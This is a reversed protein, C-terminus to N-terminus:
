KPTLDRFEPRGFLYGQFADVGFSRLVDYQEEREVGEAVVHLGMYHALHVISRVVEADVPDHVLNNVFSRDIKLEHVPLERLYSLSSYGTGFDDLAVQVHLDHLDRLTKIAQSIDSQLTSETVEIRLKEGRVGHRELASRVIEAFGGGRLQFESVNISLCLSSTSPHQGWQALMRCAEDLVWLGIETILGTREAIPIFDQPSVLGRKDDQWRVLGEYCRVTRDADVIPQLFLCLAGEAIGKRLDLVLDIHEKMETLMSSDFGRVRAYETRAHKRALEATTMLEESDLGEERSRYLRYGATATNELEIGAGLVVRGSVADLAQEAIEIVQTEAVTCDSSLGGILLGFLGTDIYGITHVPGRLSGLRKAAFRLLAEGKAVGFADSVPALDNLSLAILAGWEEDDRQLSTEFSHAVSARSPLGTRSDFYALQWLEREVEHLRTNDNRIAVYREPRGRDDLLPVITTSSWRERGDKARDCVDGQWVDGRSITRWMDRFFDNSHHGSNVFRHNKGLIEDRSYQLTSLFNDNVDLITGHRDTVAISSHTHILIELEGLRGRLMTNEALLEEVTPHEGEHTPKVHPGTVEARKIMRVGYEKRYPPANM